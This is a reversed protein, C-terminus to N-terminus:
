VKFGLGQRSSRGDDSRRFLVCSADVVQEGSCRRMVWGSVLGILGEGLRGGVWRSLGGGVRVSASGSLGGGVRVSAWGSM